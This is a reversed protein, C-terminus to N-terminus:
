AADDLRELRPPTIGHEALAGLALALQRRLHQNESDLDHNRARQRALRERLSAESARQAHPVRPTGAPTGRDRDRLTQIEALLDPHSYIFQRSVGARQCVAAVSMRQGAQDLDKIAAVAKARAADSRKRTANTLPDQDPM